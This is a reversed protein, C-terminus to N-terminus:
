PKQLHLFLVRDHAKQAIVDFGANKALHAYYLLDQKEQPWHTGYGTSIERDPLKVLLPFVAITKEEDVDGPRPPLIADWILFTGGPVLVRFVEGFVQAHDPARIYMLTFFATAAGFTADLFQLDRADMIIKLPGAAAEALERQNPDIAVVQPGKLQGIIGEGGGGVDLIFGAADFDNVTVTQQAFFYIRDESPEHHDNM